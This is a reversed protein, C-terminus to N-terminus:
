LMMWHRRPLSVPACWRARGCGLPRARANGPLRRVAGGGGNRRGYCRIPAPMGDPDFSYTAGLDEVGIASPGVLAQPSKYDVALVVEAIEVERQGVNSVHAAVRYGHEGHWSQPQM